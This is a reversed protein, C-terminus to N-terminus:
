TCDSSRRRRQITSLATKSCFNHAARRAWQAPQFLLKVTGPLEDRLKAFIEAAAMLIAVHGDHDCAHMMGTEKGNWMAKVKSAFPLDVEETVPLADMDARLAV